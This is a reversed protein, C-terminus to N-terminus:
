KKLKKAKIMFEGWNTESAPKDLAKRKIEDQKIENKVCKNVPPPPSPDEFYFVNEGYISISFDIIKQVFALWKGKPILIGQKGGKFPYKGNLFKRIDMGVECGEASITEMLRIKCSINEGLKIVQTHESFENYQTMEALKTKSLPSLKNLDRDIQGKSM